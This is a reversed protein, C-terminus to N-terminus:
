TEPPIKTAWWPCFRCPMDRAKMLTYLHLLLHASDRVFVIEALAPLPRLGFSLYSPLIWLHRWRNEDALTLCLQQLLDWGVCPVSSWIFLQGFLILKNRVLGLYQLGNCVPFFLIFYNPTTHDHRQFPQSITFQWSKWQSCKAVHILFDLGYKHKDVKAPESLWFKDQPFFWELIIGLVHRM